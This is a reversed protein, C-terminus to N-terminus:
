IPEIAAPARYWGFAVSAAALAGPRLERVLGADALTVLSAGGLYASALANVSVWLDAPESSPTCTAADPSGSLRFRGNNEAIVPDSVDLTLEVPTLYRRAALAAPVDLLRVWLGDGVSLGLRRPEDVMYQIPEDVAALWMNVTRALDMTLLHNWLAAYAVPNAAVLERVRLEARSGYNEWHEVGAWLAYGDPGGDGEHVLARLETAGSRASEPDALRYDWMHPARDSWGPRDPLLGEFIKALSDRLDAPTGERLRGGRHEATVRVERMEAQIRARQTAMGYGFRQYIRGESAWLLALPEGAARMDAFQRRMMRTLLGRRRYTAAVGVFTVHGTPVLAGPVALRRTVIGATSVIVGQDRGVLARQPEFAIHERDRLADSVAEHFVNGLLRSFEPWDADTPVELTIEDDSVGM